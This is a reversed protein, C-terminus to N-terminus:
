TSVDNVASGEHLSSARIPWFPLKSYTQPGTPERGGMTRSRNRTGSLTV